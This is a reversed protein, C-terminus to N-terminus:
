ETALTAGWRSEALQVRYTLNRLPRTGDSLRLRVSGDRARAASLRLRLASDRVGALGLRFRSATDRYTAVSALRVRLATDRVALGPV